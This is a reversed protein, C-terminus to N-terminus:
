LARRGRAVARALSAAVQAESRRFSEADQTAINVTVSVPRESAGAAVGLRGDSGRRLPLIAEPGAEGMLGAGGRMPFYTPAAVVGGQAFPQVRGAGIVGGRAFGLLNGADGTPSFLSKVAGELGKRLPSLAAKVAIGSLRTALTGLVGDLRRGASLNADMAGSLSRGFQRALRDLTELQRARDALSRETEPEAM